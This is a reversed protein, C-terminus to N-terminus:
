SYAIIAIIIHKVNYLTIINKSFCFLRRKFDTMQVTSISFRTKEEVNETLVVKLGLPVQKWVKLWSTSPSPSRTRGRINRTRRQCSTRRSQLPLWNRAKQRIRMKGRNPCLSRCSGSPSAPCCSWPVLSSSAWGGPEWGAPTRTTLLSPIQSLLTLFCFTILTHQGRCMAVDWTNEPPCPCPTRNNCKCRSRHRLHHIAKATSVVEPPNLFNLDTHLM